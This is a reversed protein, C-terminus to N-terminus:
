ASMALATRRVRSDLALASTPCSYDRHIIWMSREALIVKNILYRAKSSIADPLHQVDTNSDDTTVPTTSSDTSSGVGGSSSSHEVMGGAVMEDSSNEYVYQSAEFGPQLM